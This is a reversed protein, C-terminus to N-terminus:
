GFVIIVGLIVLVAFLLPIGAGLIVLVAFLIPIGFIAAYSRHQSNVNSNVLSHPLDGITSAPPSQHKQNFRTTEPTLCYGSIRDHDNRTLGFQEAGKRINSANAFKSKASLHPFDVFSSRAPPIRQHTQHIHTTETSSSFRSISNNDSFGFQVLDLKIRGPNSFSLKLPIGSASAFEVVAPKLKPGYESNHGQGVIVTLKDINNRVAYAVRDSLKAIAESVFLGHLDIENVNRHDNNKAFVVHAASDNAEEMRMQCEKGKISYENAKKGDGNKYALQSLRFYKNRDLACERAEARYDWEDDLADESEDESEDEWEDESEDDFGDDWEDCSEDDVISVAFM